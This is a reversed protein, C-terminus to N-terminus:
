RGETGKRIDGQRVTGKGHNGRRGRHNGKRSATLLSPSNTVKKRQGVEKTREQGKKGVERGGM